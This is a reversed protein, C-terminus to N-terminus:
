LAVSALLLNSLVMQWLDKEWNRVWLVSIRVPDDSAEAKDPAVWGKLGAVDVHDLRHVNRLPPVRSTRQM